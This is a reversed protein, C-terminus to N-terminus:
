EVNLTVINEAEDNDFTVTFTAYYTGTQTGPPAVVELAYAETEGGGLKIPPGYFEPLTGSDDGGRGASIEVRVDGVDEILGDTPTFEFDQTGPNRLKIYLKSKTEEGLEVRLTAPSIVFNGAKNRIKDLETQDDDSLTGTFKSEAQGLFNTVFGIILGLIVLGIILMVILNLSLEIAKKSKKLVM